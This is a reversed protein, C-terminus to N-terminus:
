THRDLKSVLIKFILSDTAGCFSMHGGFMNQSLFAEGEHGKLKCVLVGSVANFIRVREDDSGTVMM